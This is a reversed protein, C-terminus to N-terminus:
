SNKVFKEHRETVMKYYNVFAVFTPPRSKIQNVFKVKFHKLGANPEKHTYVFKRKWINLLNTSVRSNWKDYVKIV